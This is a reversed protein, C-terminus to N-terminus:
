IIILCTSTKQARSKSSWLYDNVIKHFLIIKEMWLNISLGAHFVIILALLVIINNNHMYIFCSLNLVDVVLTVCYQTYWNFCSVLAIARSFKIPLLLLIAHVAITHSSRNRCCWRSWSTHVNAKNCTSNQSSWDMGKHVLLNQSLEEGSLAGTSCPITWKWQWCLLLSSMEQISFPVNRLEGFNFKTDISFTERM